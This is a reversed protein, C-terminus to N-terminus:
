GVKEPERDSLEHMGIYRKGFSVADEDLRQMWDKISGLEEV